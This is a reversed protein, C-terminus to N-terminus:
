RLMPQTTLSTHRTSLPSVGSCAATFGTQARPIGFSYEIPRPQGEAVAPASAPLVDPERAM